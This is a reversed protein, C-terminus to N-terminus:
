RRGTPQWEPAREFCRYGHVRADLAAGYRAALRECEARDTYVIGPLVMGGFSLRPPEAPECMGGVVCFFIAYIM